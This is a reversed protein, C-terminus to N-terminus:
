FQLHERSSNFCRKDIINRSEIHNHLSIFGLGIGADLSILHVLNRTSNDKVVECDRISQLHFFGKHVDFILRETINEGTVLSSRIIKDFVHFFCDVESDRIIDDDVVRDCKFIDAYHPVVDKVVQVPLGDEVVPVALVVRQHHRARGEERLSGDEVSVGCYRASNSADM